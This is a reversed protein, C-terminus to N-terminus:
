MKIRAASGLGCEHMLESVAAKVHDISVNLICHAKLADCLLLNGGGKTSCPESMMPPQVVRHKTKFPGWRAVLNPPTQTGDPRYKAEMSVEVVPVLAAAAMHKTSTDNGIYLDCRKLLAACQLITTTGTANIVKGPRRQALVTGFSRERANGIVLIIADHEDILWEALEAYGSTIWQKKPIATGLGIAVLLKPRSGFSLLKEAYQEDKADTWIELADSGPTGGLAKVAQLKREAEHCVSPLDIMATFFEDGELSDKGPPRFGFRWRAKSFFLLSGLELNEPTWHLSLGLDWKRTRLKRAAFLYGKFCAAWRNTLFGLIGSELPLVHDVYPCHEMVELTVTQVVLTIHAEPFMGRLERLLSSALILDGIAYPDVVLIEKVENKSYQPPDPRKYFKVITAPTVVRDLGRSLADFSQMFATKPSFSAKGGRTRNAAV